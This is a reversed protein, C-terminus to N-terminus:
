SESNACQPCRLSGDELRELQAGCKYCYYIDKDNHGKGLKERIRFPIPRNHVIYRLAQREFLDDNCCSSCSPCIYLDNPCKKNDRSDILGNKCNYCYSMYVDNSYEPCTPNICAFHNYRNYDGVRVTYMLHGCTRCKLRWFQRKVRNACAVFETITDDPEFGAETERLKPFGIIEIMHYISYATWTNCNALVQNDLNNRFCEIGRCWFFPMDTVRNHAEALQPACLPQHMRLLPDLFRRQNEREREDDSFAGKFYFLGLIKRGLEPNYEVEFYSGNYDDQQLEKKLSEIVRRLIEKSEREEFEKIIDDTVVSRKKENLIAQKIGFIDYRIGVLPLTRPIFRLYLRKSYDLLLSLSEMDKSLVVYRNKNIIECKNVLSRIHQSLIKTSTQSIDITIGKTSKSEPLPKELFANLWEYDNEYVVWKNEYRQRTFCSFRYQGTEMRLGSISNLTTEKSMCHQKEEDTFPRKQNDYGCTYYSLHPRRDLLNRISALLHDDTFKSEDLECVISYDIFGKFDKNYVAGGNCNALIKELGLDVSPKTVDCLTMAFDLIGDFSQFSSGGNNNLTLICDCLLSVSLDIPEDPTELCYRYRIFDSFDNEKFQSLLQFDMSTRAMRVDHFYRKVLTMQKPLAILSYLSRLSQNTCHSDMNKIKNGEDLIYDISNYLNWETTRYQEQHLILNLANIIVDPFYITYQLKYKGFLSQIKEQKTESLGRCIKLFAENLIFHFSHVDYFSLVNQLDIINWSCYNLMWLLHIYPYKDMSIRSRIIFSNIVLKWDDQSSSSVSHVNFSVKDLCSNKGDELSEEIPDVVVLAYGLYNGNISEDSISGHFDQDIAEWHYKNHIGTRDEYSDNIKHLFLLPNKVLEEFRTRDTSLTNM